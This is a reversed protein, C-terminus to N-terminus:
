RKVLQLQLDYGLAHAVRALTSVEVDSGVRELQSIRVKSLGLRSALETGTLGSQLRAQKLMEGINEALLADSLGQQVDAVTFETALRVVDESGQIISGNPMAKLQAIATKLSARPPLEKKM